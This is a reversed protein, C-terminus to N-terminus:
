FSHYFEPPNEGKVAAEVTRRAIALLKKQTEEDM